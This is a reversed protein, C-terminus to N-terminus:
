TGAEPACALPQERAASSPAERTLRGVRALCAVIDGSMRHLGQDLLAVLASYDGLRWGAARYDTGGRALVAGDRPRHLEWSALLHAEGELALTDEPAVGEFRSVHLQLVLDHQSRVPWPAVDVARVPQAEALYGAFARNIGAVPDEGWRHYESAQMRNAGHRVMISPSALYPTLDLRRLGVTIGGPDPSLAGEAAAPAGGLVYHRVAPTDRGLSFCAGLVLAVPIISLTGIRM